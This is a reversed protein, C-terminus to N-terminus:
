HTLLYSKNSYQWKSNQGSNNSKYGLTHIFTPRKWLVRVFYPPSINAISLFSYDKSQLLYNIWIKYLSGKQKLEMLIIWQIFNKIKFAFLIKQLFKPLKTSYYQLFKFKEVIICVIKSCSTGFHKSIVTTM